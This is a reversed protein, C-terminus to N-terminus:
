NETTLCRRRTLRGPSRKTAGGHSAPMAPAREMAMLLVKFGQMEVQANLEALAFLATPLSTM